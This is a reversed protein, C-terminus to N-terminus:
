NSNLSKFSCPASSLSSLSMFVCHISVEIRPYFSIRLRGNRPRKAATQKNNESSSLGTDAYSRSRSLLSVSSKDSCGDSLSYADMADALHRFSTKRRLLASSSMKQFALSSFSKASSQQLKTGTAEEGISTAFSVYIPSFYHKRLRALEEADFPLRALQELEFAHKALWCQCGTMRPSLPPTMIEPTDNSKADDSLEQRQPQWGERDFLLELNFSSPQKLIGQETVEVITENAPLVPCQFLKPSCAGQGSKLDAHTADRFRVFAEKAVEVVLKADAIENLRSHAGRSSPSKAEGTSDNTDDKLNAYCLTWMNRIFSLTRDNAWNEVESPFGLSTAAAAFVIFSLFFSVFVHTIV